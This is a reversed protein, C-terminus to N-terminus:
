NRIVNAAEMAADWFAIELETAQVFIKALEELRKPSVPSEAITSELLAANRQILGREEARHFRM